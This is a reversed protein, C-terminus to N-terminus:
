RTVTGESFPLQRTELFSCFLFHWKWHLLFPTM